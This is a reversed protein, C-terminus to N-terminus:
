KCEFQEEIFSDIQKWNHEKSDDSWIYLLEFGLNTAANKKQQDKDYSEKATVKSFPSTWNEDQPTRPHFAAGNYEIIFKVNECIVTFDFLYKRLRTKDFIMYEESGRVGLYIEDRQIGYGKRLNKYLPKFYNMSEKSGRAFGFAGSNNRRRALDELEDDTWGYNVKLNNLTMKGFSSGFFHDTGYRENNSKIAADRPVAGLLDNYKLKMTNRTKRNVEINKQPNSVGLKDQYHKVMLDTRQFYNDVGYKENMTTRYNKKFLDTKVINDVGYKQQFGIRIKEVHKTKETDTKNEYTNKIKDTRHLSHNSCYASCFQRYRVEPKSYKVNKNCELCKPTEKINNAFAYIRESWSAEGDLHKTHEFITIWVNLLGRSSWYSERSTNSNIKGNKNYVLDLISKQNLCQIIEM